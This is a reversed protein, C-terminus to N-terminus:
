LNQSCFPFCFTNTTETAAAAAAATSRLLLLLLILLLYTTNCNDVSFHAQHKYSPM